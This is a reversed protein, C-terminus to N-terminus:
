KRFNRGIQINILELLEYDMKDEVDKRLELLEEVSKDKILEMFESKWKLM